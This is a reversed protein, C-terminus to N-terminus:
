SDCCCCCSNISELAATFASAFPSNAEMLINKTSSSSKLCSVSRSAVIEAILASIGKLPAVAHIRIQEIKTADTPSLAFEVATTM